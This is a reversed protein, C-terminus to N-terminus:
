PSWASTDGSEFGDAFIAALVDAFVYASGSEAAVNSDRAAGIVLTDGDVAVSAGFEDGFAADSATLKSVEGWNGAGGQNREFM